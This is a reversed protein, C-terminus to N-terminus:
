EEEDELDFEMETELDFFIDEDTEEEIEFDKPFGADPAPSNDIDSQVPIRTVDLEDEEDQIVGMDSANQGMDDDSSLDANGYDRADDTNTM